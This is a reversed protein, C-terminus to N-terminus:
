EGGPEEKKEGCVSCREYSWPVEVVSPTGDELIVREWWSGSVLEWRHPQIAGYCESWEAGCRSCRYTISGEGTCDPRRTVVGADRDHGLAEECVTEIYRGSDPCMVDYDANKRGESRAAKVVNEGVAKPNDAESVDPASIERVASGCGTMLVVTALVTM